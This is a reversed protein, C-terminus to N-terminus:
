PTSAAARLEERLRRTPVADVVLHLITDAEKAFTTRLFSVFDAPIMEGTGLAKAARKFASVLQANGRSIHEVHALLAQDNKRRRARSSEPSVVTDVSNRRIKSSHRMDAGSSASVLAARHESDRLSRQFRYLLWRAFERDFHEDLYAIFVRAARLSDNEQRFLRARKKFLKLMADGYRSSIEQEIERKYQKRSKTEPESRESSSPCSSQLDIQLQRLSGGGGLSIDSVSSTTSTPTVDGRGTRLSPVFEGAGLFDALVASGAHTTLEGVNSLLLIRQLYYDLEKRRRELFTASQDQHFFTRVKHEPAFAVTVMMRTFASPQSRMAADFAQFDSFSKWVTWEVADGPALLSGDRLRGLADNPAPVPTLSFRCHIEYVVASDRQRAARVRLRLPSPTLVDM